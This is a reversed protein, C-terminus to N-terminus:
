TIEKLDRSFYNELIFKISEAEMIVLTEEITLKFTNIIHNKIYEKPNKDIEFLLAEKNNLLNEYVDYELQNIM